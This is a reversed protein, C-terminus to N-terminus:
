ASAMRQPLFGALETARLIADQGGKEYTVNRSARIAGFCDARLWFTPSQQRCFCASCM